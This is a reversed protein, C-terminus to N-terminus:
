LEIYKIVLNKSNPYVKHIFETMSEDSELDVAGCYRKYANLYSTNQKTITM